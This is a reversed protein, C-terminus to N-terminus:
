KLTHKHQCSCISISIFVLVLIQLCTFAIWLLRVNLFENSNRDLGVIFYKHFELDFLAGVKHFCTSHNDPLVFPKLHPKYGTIEKQTKVLM